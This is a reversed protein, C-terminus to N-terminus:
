EVQMAMSFTSTVPSGLRVVGPWPDLVIEGREIRVYEFRGFGLSTMAAAFTRESALLEGTSTPRSM